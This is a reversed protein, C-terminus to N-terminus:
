APSGNDNHQLKRKKWCVICIGVCYVPYPGNNRRFIRQSRSYSISFGSATFSVWQPSYFRSLLSPSASLPEPNPRWQDPMCPCLVKIFFFRGNPQFPSCHESRFFQWKWPQSISNIGTNLDCYFWCSCFLNKANLPEEQLSGMPYAVTASWEDRAWNRKKQKRVVPAVGSLFVPVFSAM